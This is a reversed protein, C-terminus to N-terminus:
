IGPLTLQSLQMCILFSRVIPIAQHSCQCTSAVTYGCSEVQCWRNNVVLINQLWLHFREVM